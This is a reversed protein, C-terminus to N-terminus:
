GLLINIDLSTINALTHISQEVLYYPSNQGAMATFQANLIFKDISMMAANVNSLLAYLEDPDFRKRVAM